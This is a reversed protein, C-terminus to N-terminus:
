VVVNMVEAIGGIVGAAGTQELRHGPGFIGVTMEDGQM